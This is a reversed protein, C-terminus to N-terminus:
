FPCSGAKKKDNASSEANDCPNPEVQQRRCKAIPKESRKLEPFVGVHARTQNSISIRHGKAVQFSFKSGIHREGGRRQAFRVKRQDLDIGCPLIAFRAGIAALATLSDVAREEHRVALAHSVIGKIPAIEIAASVGRGLSFYVMIFAGFPDNTGMSPRAVSPRFCSM